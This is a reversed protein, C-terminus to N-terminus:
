NPRELIDMGSDEFARVRQKTAVSRNIFQWEVGLPHGATMLILDWPVDIRDKETLTVGGKALKWAMVGAIQKWRGHLQDTTARAEPREAHTRSHAEKLTIFTLNIRDPLREELMVRDHPLSTLDEKFLVVGCPALKWLLTTAIVEWSWALEKM